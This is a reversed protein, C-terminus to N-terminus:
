YRDGGKQEREMARKADREAVDQKRDFLRKGKCLGIEVKVKGQKFYFKMPILTFGKEKVKNDLKRIESKHLLLRRRRRPEIIRDSTHSYPSINLDVLWAEGAKVECFADRLNLGGQRISKVEHGELAVGAEIREVVTYNRLANRNVYEPPKTKQREKPL